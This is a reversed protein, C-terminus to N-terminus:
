PLGEKTKICNLSNLENGTNVILNNKFYVRILRSIYDNIIIECYKSRECFNLLAIIGLNLGDRNSLNLITYNNNEIIVFHVRSHNRTQYFSYIGNKLDGKHYDNQIGIVDIQRRGSKYDDIEFERIDNNKILFTILHTKLSDFTLTNLDQSNSNSYILLAVLYKIIKRKIKM